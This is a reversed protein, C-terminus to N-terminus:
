WESTFGQRAQRDYAVWQPVSTTDTTAMPLGGARTSAGGFTQMPALSGLDGAPYATGQEAAFKAM